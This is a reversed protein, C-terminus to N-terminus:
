GPGHRGPLCVSVDDPVHTRPRSSPPPPTDAKLQVFLRVVLFSFLFFKCHFNLSVFSHKGIRAGTITHIWTGNVLSCGPVGPACQPVDYEYPSGILLAGDGGFELGKHYGPTYPQVYFRFKQHYVLPQDTWPIEQDADLLSWMHHCAWQGGRYHRIDCTPNRQEILVTTPAPACKGARFGVAGAGVDAPQSAVAQYRLEGSAQGFPKPAEPCVCAGAVDAGVPVLALTGLVKAKHYQLDPTSGVAAIYPLSADTATVAFTYYAPGAGKLPRSVVVTRLGGTVSSRVVTVSPALLQGAEHNGLKRESVAGQGDVIITWPADEMAHAGFGAGFWVGAPGTLTITATSNAADLTVSLAILDNSAGAMRTAGAACPQSSNDANFFVSLALPAAPNPVSVLCGAPRAPDTGTANVFTRNGGALLSAAAHYCEQFTLIREPCSGTTTVVYTGDVVKTLRTTM